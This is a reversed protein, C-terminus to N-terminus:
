IKDTAKANKLMEGLDSRSLNVAFTNEGLKIPEIVNTGPVNLMFGSM